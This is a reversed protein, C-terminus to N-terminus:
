VDAVQNLENQILAWTLISLGLVNLILYMIGSNSTQVGNRAKLVDVKEGMKYAWYLSYFGCTVITLLLAVVGTTGQEEVATNMDDTLCVFWYFGYIGCTVISLIICLAINRQKIMQFKGGKRLTGKVIGNITCDTLKQLFIGKKYSFIRYM